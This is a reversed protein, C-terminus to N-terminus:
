AWVQIEEFFDLRKDTKDINKVVSFRVDDVMAPHGCSIFAAGGEAEEIEQEVIDSICPRGEIISVHPLVARVSEFLSSSLSEKEDKEKEDPTSGILSQLEGSESMSQSTVYITTEVKTGKLAVLEPYFWALSRLERVVWYLRVKQKTEATKRVLHTMESYLGPIGNGGAIFVASGHRLLSLADGYPGEVTVRMTTSKGPLLALKAGLRRTLGGKVKCYFVIVNEETPHPCFTFPHSQYFNVGDLFYLWAHGGPTMPWVRPKPVEVRLTEGSVLSVKAKPFGFYVMRVVRIIRDFAWVAFCAYLYEGYGLTLVHYWAGIVFFLALAIHLYLFIEYWRRRFFLLGQFCILGGCAMAVIGWVVYTEAMEEAYEKYGIFMRTWCLAHIFALLVVVRGTWRHYAILTSYKWKTLFLVFNNRGGFLFLLPMLIVCIICTRDAVYRQIAERRSSFIPDGEVFYIEVRNFVITLLVFVTVVLSELRSPVLFDLYLFSQSLARKRYLAPMTVWKRWFKSGTGNFFLRLGPFLRTLWNAVAAVLCVLAWFALLGSGYYLSNDYNGLFPVYAKHMLHVFSANLVIPMSVPVSVNFNPVDSANKASSYLKHADLIQRETVNYGGEKCNKVFYSYDSKELIEFCGTLTALSNKDHCACYYDTANCFSAQFSIAYNCALYLIGSDGYRVSPAVKYAQAVAVIALLCPSFYM